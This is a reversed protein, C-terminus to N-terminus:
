KAEGNFMILIEEEYLRDFNDPVIQKQMFGFRTTPLDNDIPVIKVQPKGAKAIIVPTKQRKVEEVIRSLHTKADHINISQLEVAISM